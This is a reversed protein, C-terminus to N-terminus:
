VKMGPKIKRMVIKHADSSVKTIYRLAELEMETKIVRCEAMIPHLTENNM